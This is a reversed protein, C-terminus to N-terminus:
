SVLLIHLYWFLYLYYYPRIFLLVTMSFSVWLFIKPQYVKTAWMFGFMLSFLFFLLFIITSLILLYFFTMRKSINKLITKYM